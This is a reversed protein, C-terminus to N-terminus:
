IKGFGHCDQFAQLLMEEMEQYSQVNRPIYFELFCTSCYPLRKETKVQSFFKIKIYENFGAPPVVDAGTVFTLIAELSVPFWDRGGYLLYSRRKGTTLDKQLSAFRTYLELNM